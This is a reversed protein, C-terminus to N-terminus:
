KCALNWVTTCSKPRLANAFGIRRCRFVGMTKIVEVHRWTTSTLPAALDAERGLQNECNVLPTNRRLSCNV